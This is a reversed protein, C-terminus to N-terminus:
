RGHELFSQMIKNFGAHLLVAVSPAESDEGMGLVEMTDGLVVVAVCGVDGYQGKEIDEILRQLTPVVQRYNSEHLTVVNTM